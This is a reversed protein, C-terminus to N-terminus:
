KEGVDEGKIDIVMVGRATYGGRKLSNSLIINGIDDMTDRDGKTDNSTLELRQSNGDKILEIKIM